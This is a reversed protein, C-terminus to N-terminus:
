STLVAYSGLIIQWIHKCIWFIGHYTAQVGFDVCASDTGFCGNCIRHSYDLACGGALLRQKRRLGSDSCYDSEVAGSVVFIVASIATMCRVFSYALGAFFAPAILPLLIRRFTTLSGAGLNTSAEELSSDIQDLSAAAARIGVPMNRFIFLLVIIAATGRLMLPPQNFALIYGIGVVTGPVAFSLM